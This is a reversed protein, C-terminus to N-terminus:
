NEALNPLNSQSFDNNLVKIDPDNEKLKQPNQNTEVKPQENVNKQQSSKAFINNRDSKSNDHINKFLNDSFISESM